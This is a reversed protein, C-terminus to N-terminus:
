SSDYAIEYNSLVWKDSETLPHSEHGEERRAIVCNRSADFLYRNLFTIRGLQVNSTEQTTAPHKVMAIKRCLPCTEKGKRNWAMICTFHFTHGCIGLVTKIDSGDFPDLCISCEPTTM